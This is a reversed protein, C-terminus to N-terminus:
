CKVTVLRSYGDMIVLVGEFRSGSGKSPFILDVYVVQNPEKTARDLKNHHKKKKKQKVLHCADCTDQLRQTLMMGQVLGKDVMTM